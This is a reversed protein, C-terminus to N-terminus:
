NLYKSLKEWTRKGIIGDAKLGNAKQFEKIAQRTQLGINGDTSGKYFGANRLAQQVRKPTIALTKEKEGLKTEIKGRYLEKELFRMEEDKALLERELTAIRNQLEKIQAQKARPTACGILSLVLLFVVLIKAM